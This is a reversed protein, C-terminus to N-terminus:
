SVTRNIYKWQTWDIACKSGIYARYLIYNLKIILVIVQNHVLLQCYIIIIYKATEWYRPWSCHFSDFYEATKEAMDLMDPCASVNSELKM